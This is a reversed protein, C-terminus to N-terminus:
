GLSGRLSPAAARLTALRQEAVERRQEDPTKRQTSHTTSPTTHSPDVVASTLAGTTDWSATLVGHERMFALKRTWDDPVDGPVLFIYRRFLNVALSIWRRALHDGGRM